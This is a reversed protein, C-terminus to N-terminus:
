NLIKRDHINSDKENIIKYFEKLSNGQIVVNDSSFYKKITDYSWKKIGGEIYDFKLRQILVIGVAIIKYYDKLLDKASDYNNISVIAGLSFFAFLVGKESFNKFNFSNYIKEFFYDMVIDKSQSNNKKFFVMGAFWSLYCKQKIETINLKEINKTIVPYCLEFANLLNELEKIKEHNSLLKM